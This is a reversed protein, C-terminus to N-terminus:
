SFFIFTHKLALFFFTIMMIRYRGSGLLLIPVFFSDVFVQPTSSSILGFLHSYTIPTKVSRNKNEEELLVNGGEVCLDKRPPLTYASPCPGSSLTLEPSLSVEDARRPSLM